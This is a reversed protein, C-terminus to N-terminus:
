CVWFDDLQFSGDCVRATTICLLILLTFTHRNRQISYRIYMVSRDVHSILEVDQLMQTSLSLMTCTIPKLTGTKFDM